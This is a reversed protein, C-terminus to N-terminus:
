GSLVEDVTVRRNEAVGRLGAEITALAVLALDVTAPPAVGRRVQDVFMAIGGPAGKRPELEELTPSGSEALLARAPAGAATPGYMLAGKMGYFYLHDNPVASVGSAVLTSHAGSEHEILFTAVNPVRSPALGSAISCRVSVPRGLFRTLTAAAPVGLLTAPGGPCERPSHHWDSGRSESAWDASRMAHAGFLRGIRGSSALEHMADIEPRFSSSHDVFLVVGSSAAARAMERGAAVFNAIPRPVFVHKGASALALTVDKHASNPVCAIGADIGADRCIADLGEAPRVGFEVAFRDRSATDRDWCAVLEAGKTHAIELALEAAWRGTGIMAIRLPRDEPASPPRAVGGTRADKPVLGM